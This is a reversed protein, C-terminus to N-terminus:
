QRNIALSVERRAWQLSHNRLPVKALDACRRLRKEMMAHEGAAGWAVAEFIVSGFREGHERHYSKWASLARKSWHDRTATDGLRAYKLAMMAAGVGCSYGAGPVKNRIGRLGLQYQKKPQESFWYYENELAHAQRPTPRPTLQCRTRMLERLLAVTRKKNNAARAKSLGATIESLSIASYYRARFDQPYRRIFVAALRRAAGGKESSFLARIDRVYDEPSKRM